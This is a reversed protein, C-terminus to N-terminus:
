RPQPGTAIPLGAAQWAKTGGDITFAPRGALDLLDAARAGRGGSSCATIVPGDPLAAAGKPLTDIPVNIAGAIHGTAYEAPTRVDILTDGARWMERATAVDIREAAM